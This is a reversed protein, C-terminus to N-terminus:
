PQLKTGALCCPGGHTLYDESEILSLGYSSSLLALGPHYSNHSAVIEVITLVQNEIPKRTRDKGWTAGQHEQKRQKNHLKM